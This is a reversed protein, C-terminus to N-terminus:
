LGREFRVRFEDQLITAEDLLLLVITVDSTGFTTETIDTRSKQRNEHGEITQITHVYM